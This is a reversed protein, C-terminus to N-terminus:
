YEDHWDWWAYPPSQPYGEPSDEWAEQRGLATIDLYSWTGGMAEDGRNDVFYTRYVSEGDRVFANTGHWHDVGFDADFGDTMTFWPMTWGMREKVRAIDPQPARSAFVLTTDRAHLHAVHAVQDAVLSCGRCAHDPWGHVGEELFARYVILQRRGDFLDLLSVRGDPGDLAYEQEVRMWPMRRRRAAMADRARTLEKERVLLARRAADWEAADVIPPRTM